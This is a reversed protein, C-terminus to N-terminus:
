TYQLLSVAGMRGTFMLLPAWGRAVVDGREFPVAPIQVNDMTVGFTSADMSVIVEVDSKTWAFDDSHEEMGLFDYLVRGDATMHEDPNTRSISLVGGRFLVTWLHVNNERHLALVDLKRGRASPRVVGLTLAFPTTYGAAALSFGWRQEGGANPVPELARVLGMRNPQRMQVVFNDHTFHMGQRASGWSPDLPCM